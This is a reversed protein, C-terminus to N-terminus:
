SPSQPKRRYSEWPFVLALGNSMLRDYTQEGLASPCEKPTLNSIISTPLVDLYRANIVDFLIARDIDNATGVGIEDIFLYDFAAYFRLLDKEGVDIERRRAARFMKSIRSATTLCVMQGHRDQIARCQAYALHTKGTGPMGCLVLGAGLKKRGEWKDVYAMMIRLVGRQEDTQAQYSDFTASEFRSPIQLQVM